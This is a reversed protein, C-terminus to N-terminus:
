KSQSSTKGYSKLKPFGLQGGLDVVIFAESKLTQPIAEKSEIKIAVDKNTKINTGLFVLGFAGKGIKDKVLYKKFLIPYNKQFEKDDM